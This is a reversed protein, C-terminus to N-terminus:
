NGKGAPAAPQTPAPRQLQGRSKKRLWEDEEATTTVRVGNEADTLVIEEVASKPLMVRNSRTELVIHDDAISSLISGVLRNNNTLRVFGATAKQLEEYDSSGLQALRVIERRPLSIEGESLRLTLYQADAAKVNGIFYNGNALQAFARSGPAVGDVGQRAADGVLEGVMLHENIRTLRPAVVGSERPTARAVAVPWNGTPETNGTPAQVVAPEGGEPTTQNSSPETVVPTTEVPTTDTPTPEVPATEVPATETPTVAQSSTTATTGTGAGPTPTPAIVPMAPTPVEVQVRPRAVQAVEVQTPSFHLGFWDPRYAALGAVGLIALVAALGSAIGVFRNRRRVAGVLVPAATPEVEGYIDHGEVEDEVLALGAPEVVAEVGEGDAPEAAADGYIPDDSYGADDTAELAAEFSEAGHEAPAEADTDQVLEVGEVEALDDIRAGPLPEWGEELAPAGVAAGVNGFFDVAAGEDAGAPEDELVEDALVPLSADDLELEVVDADFEARASAPADTAMEVGDEIVFVDAEESRAVADTGGVIELEEHEALAFEGDDQLLADLESSFEAEAAQPDLVPMGAEIATGADTDVPIGPEDLDLTDGSWTSAATEDFAAGKFQASPTLGQTHDTFLLDAEDVAGQPQPQPGPGAPRGGGPKSDTEPELAEDLVFDDLFDDDSTQHEGTM